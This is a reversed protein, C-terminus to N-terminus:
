NTTKKKGGTARVCDHQELTLWRLYPLGEAFLDAQATRAVGKKKNMSRNWFAHMSTSFFGWVLVSVFLCVFVLTISCHLFLRFLHLALIFHASYQPQHCREVRSCSDNCASMWFTDHTCCTAENGENIPRKISLLPIRQEFFLLGNM